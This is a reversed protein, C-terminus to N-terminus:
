EGRREPHDRDDVMLLVVIFAAFIGLCVLFVTILDDAVCNVPLTRAIVEDLASM